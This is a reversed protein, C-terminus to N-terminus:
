AVLMSSAALQWKKVFLAKEILSSFNMSIISAYLRLLYPAAKKRKMGINLGHWHQHRDNSHQWDCLWAAVTVNNKM